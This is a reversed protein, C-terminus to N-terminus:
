EKKEEENGAQPLNEEKELDGLDKKPLEDEDDSDEGGDFGQMMDPNWNEGLGKNRDEDEEDEDVYKDWDVSINQHRTDEKTLRKWHPKSEKKAIIMALHLGIKTWKSEAPNIDDFFHLETAYAQGDSTGSFILINPEKLEVKEDKIDRIEITLFLKDKRQAWKIPPLRAAM